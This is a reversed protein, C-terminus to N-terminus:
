DGYPVVSELENAGDGVLAAAGLEELADSPRYYVHQRAEMFERLEGTILRTSRDGYTGWAAGEAIPTAHEIAAEQGDAVIHM